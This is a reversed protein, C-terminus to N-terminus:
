NETEVEAFGNEFEAELKAVKGTKAFDLQSLDMVGGGERQFWMAPNIAVTITQDGGAQVVLPPNFELEVEVEADFYVRFPVPDGGTPTFTGTVLLSANAPWDSFMPRIQALLASDRPAKSEFDLEHYTGAAVHENVVGAEAGDLPVSVFHAATEFEECEDEESSADQCAGAERELEFEGVVLRIDDITLTGNDGTLVLSQAAAPAGAISSAGSRPAVAADGVLQFNVAVSGGSGTDTLGCGVGALTALIAISKNM